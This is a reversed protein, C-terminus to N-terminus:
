LVSLLLALAEEVASKRVASRDGAFVYRRVVTDGSGALGIYVLGVPKSPTGGDPGAIGTVSLAFDARAARLAGEAMARAAQESVAGHEVLVKAPVGLLREKLENSYSIVGGLFCASSGSVGTIRAGLLGGTCSEAVALKKGSLALKGVIEKEIM